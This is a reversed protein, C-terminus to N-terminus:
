GLSNTAHWPQAISKPKQSRSKVQARGAHVHNSMIGQFLDLLVRSDDVTGLSNLFRTRVFYMALDYTSIVIRNGRENWGVLLLRM